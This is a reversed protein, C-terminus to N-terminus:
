EVTMKFTQSFHNNDSVHVFYIGKMLDTRQFSILAAGNVAATERSEILKGDASVLSISINGSLEQSTLEVSFHGNNPNPYVNVELAHSECLLSLANYKKQNGNFDVQVLRYYVVGRNLSHDEFEYNILQSSNGASKVKSVEIWNIGDTTKEVSFYDSNQESATQWKLSAFEKCEVSFSAMEVPLPSATGGGFGFNSWGSVGSRSVVPMSAPGAAALHTGPCFWNPGSAAVRKLLTLKSVDAISSLGEGTCVITYEGDTLTGPENDIKWYGDAETATVDFATGGTNASVIPIGSMGMGASIFEVTLYGGNTPANTYAIAVNRNKIGGQDFGMPFLSTSNGANTGNFWRKMKGLVFGSTYALVGKQTTGEGLELANSQTLVNGSNMELQNQIQVNSSLNLDGTTKEVVLNYFIETANGAIFINQTATGNFVITSEGQKFDSEIGNNIFSGKLFITGDSIASNGDSMDLEGGTEITLDGNVVVTTSALEHEFKANSSSYGKITLNQCVLKANDLLVLKSTGSGATKNILINGSVTLAGTTLVTLDTHTGNTSAITLTKCVAEDDHIECDQLATQNITVDTYQTPVKHDSWNRCDFWDTNEEGTWLGPTGGVGPNTVSVTASAKCNDGDVISVTYVQSAGTLYAVPNQIDAEDLTPTPTWSYTLPEEFSAVDAGLQVGDATNCVATAANAAVSPLNFATGTPTTVGSLKVDDITWNENSRNNKATMRFRFQSIGSLTLKFASKTDGSGYTSNTLSLATVPSSSLAFTRDNSGSETLIKTWSSGGNTSVEITLDEGSDPGAGSGSGFSAVKFEFIVQSYSSLGSLNDFTVTNTSGRETGANNASFSKCLVNSGYSKIGTVDDGTGSGSTYIPTGVVYGWDTLADFNNQKVISTTPTVSPASVNFTNSTKTVATSSLTAYATFQCGTQPSRVIKISSFVAVGNVANVIQETYGCGTTLRLTVPGTFSTATVGTASCVAKVRVTTMTANQVVASPQIEYVLSNPTTCPAASVTLSQTVSTAPCYTGNGAQSATITATGVGVITVLGSSANVTAVSTNSSSYTVALGSTATTAASYAADGQTKGISSPSIANITQATCAVGATLGVSCLAINGSSKTYTWRIYRSTSLLTPYSFSQSAGASTITAVTTYASGNASEEVLLNGGSFSNGTLKFTLTGPTGNFALVLRDNSDDFKLATPCGAINTSTYDSGLGSQSFGTPLSGKSMSTIGTIPLTAQGLVGNIGLCTFLLILITNIKLISRM